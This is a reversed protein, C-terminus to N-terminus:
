DGEKDYIPCEFSFSPLLTLQLIRKSQSMKVKAGGTTSLAAGSGITLSKNQFLDITLKSDDNGRKEFTAKLQTEAGLVGLSAPLIADKAAGQAAVLGVATASTAVDLGMGVARADFGSQTEGHAELRLRAQGIIAMVGSVVAAAVTFFQQADVKQLKGEGAISFWLEPEGGDDAPKIYKASVSVGFGAVGTVAVAGSYAINYVKLGKKEQDKGFMNKGSKSPIAAADDKGQGRLHTGKSVHLAGKASAVGGNLEGRVGGKIGSEVYARKKITGDSQRDSEIMREEVGEAWDDASVDGKKWMYDVAAKPFVASQRLRRFLSYSIQEYAHGATAGVSEVYGGLEAVGRAVGAGGSVGLLMEMKVTVFSESAAGAGGARQVSGVMHINFFPQGAPTTPIAIEVDLEAKDGADPILGEVMSAFGSMFPGLGSEAVSRKKIKKIAATGADIAKDALADKDQAAADKSVATTMAKKVTKERSTFRGHGKKKAVAKAATKLADDASTMHVAMAAMKAMVGAFAEDINGSVILAAAEPQLSAQVSTTALALATKAQPTIAASTLKVVELKHEAGVESAIRDLIEKAAAAAAIRGAEKGAFYARTEIIDVTDRESLDHKGVMDKAHAETADKMATKFKGGKSASKGKQTAANTLEQVQKKVMDGTAKIVVPMVFEDVAVAAAAEAVASIHEAAQDVISKFNSLVTAALKAADEPSTDRQVGRGTTASGRVQVQEGRAAAAGLVDAERELSQDANVNGGKNQTTVTGSRQQVVHTLEHGLLEKGGESIADYRGPAFHINSGHTFAQAGMAGAAAGEHVRVDSFDTQFASEFHRRTADPLANGGSTPFQQLRQQAAVADDIGKGQIPTSGTLAAVSPPLGGTGFDRASSSVKGPSVISRYDDFDLDYDDAYDKQGGPGSREYAM